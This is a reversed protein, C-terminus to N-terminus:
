IDEERPTNCWDRSYKTLRAYASDEDTASDLEDGFVWGDGKCKPCPKDPLGSVVEKISADAVEQFPDIEDLLIHEEIDNQSIPITFSLKDSVKYILHHNNVPFSNFVVTVRAGKELTMGNFKSTYTILVDGKRVDSM